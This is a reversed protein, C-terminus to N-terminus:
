FKDVTLFRLQDRLAPYIHRYVDEYRTSYFKNREEDPEFVINELQVMGQVADEPDSYIDLASAALIGAGLASAEREIARQM